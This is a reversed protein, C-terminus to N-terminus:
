NAAVYYNPPTDSVETQVAAVTSVQADRTLRRDQMIGLAKCAAELVEQMVVRIM